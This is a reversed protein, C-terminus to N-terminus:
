SSCFFSDAVAQPSTATAQTTIPKPVGIVANCKLITFAGASHGGAV